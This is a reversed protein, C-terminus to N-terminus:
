VKRKIRKVFLRFFYLAGLLAFFAFFLVIKETFWTFNDAVQARNRRMEDTILTTIAAQQLNEDIDESGLFDAM